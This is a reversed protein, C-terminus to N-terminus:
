KSVAEKKQIKLCGGGFFLKVTLLNFVLIGTMTVLGIAHTVSLNHNNKDQKVGTTETTELMIVLVHRCVDSVSTEAFPIRYGNRPVSFSTNSGRVVKMLFTRSSVHVPILKSPSTSRLFHEIPHNKPNLRCRIILSLPSIRLKM